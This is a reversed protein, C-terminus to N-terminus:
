GARAQLEPNQLQALAQRGKETLLAASAFSGHLQVLWANNMARITRMTVRVADCQPHGAPRYGGACRTLEGTTSAEFARLAGAVKPTIHM